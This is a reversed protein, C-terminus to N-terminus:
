GRGTGVPPSLAGIRTGPMAKSQGGDAWHGGRLGHGLSHTSLCKLPTLSPAPLSLCLPHVSRSALPTCGLVAGPWGPDHDARSLRQAATAKM